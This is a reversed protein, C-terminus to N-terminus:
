NSAGFLENNATSIRRLCDNVRTSEVKYKNIAAIIQDAEFGFREYMLDAVETQLEIIDLKTRALTKREQLREIQYELIEELNEPTLEEPAGVANAILTTIQNMQAMANIVESDTGFKQMAVQLDESSLNQSELLDTM